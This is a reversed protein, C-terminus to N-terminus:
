SSMKIVMACFWKYGSIFVGIARAGKFFGFFVQVFGGLQRNSPERIGSLVM